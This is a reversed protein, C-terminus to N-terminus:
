GAASPTPTPTPNETFVNGAALLVFQRFENADAAATYDFQQGNVLITPTSAVSEIDAGPLPGDVARDTAAKVWSRFRREEVCSRISGMPSAGAGRAREILEEDSLGPSGELPQDTLLSVHFAYFEDPSYEAVCAAANAARLSYQTGASKTTLVALPHIELTAAGSDVWAAITEGSSAEFAGCNACLYDVYIRIDFVDAPNAEPPVPQGNASVAATREAVLEAGIKIGDSRMNLPGRTPAQIVSLLVLTVVVGVAVIGGGVSLLTIQRRRRDRKRHIERLEVARDRAAERAETRRRSPAGGGHDM